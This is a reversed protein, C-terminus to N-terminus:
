KGRLDLPPPSSKKKCLKLFRKRAIKTLYSSYKGRKKVKISYYKNLYPTCASGGADKDTLCITAGCSLEQLSLASAPLPALIMLVLLYYFGFQRLM